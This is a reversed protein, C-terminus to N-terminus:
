SLLQLTKLKLKETIEPAPKEGIEEKPKDYNKKKKKGGRTRQRAREEGTKPDVSKQRQNHAEPKPIKPTPVSKSRVQDM